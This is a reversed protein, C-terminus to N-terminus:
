DKCGTLVMKQRRALLQINLTSMQIAEVYLKMTILFM